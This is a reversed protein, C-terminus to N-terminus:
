WSRAAMQCSPSSSYIRIRGAHPMGAMTLSGGQGGDTGPGALVVITPTASGAANDLAVTLGAACQAQILYGLRPASAAPITQLLTLGSLSPANTSFDSGVRGPSILTESAELHRRVPVEVTDTQAAASDPWGFSPCVLAAFAALRLVAKRRGLSLIM